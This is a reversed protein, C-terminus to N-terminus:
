LRTGARLFSFLMHVFTLVIAGLIAAVFNKIRFGPALLASALWLVIANIVVLFLGLTLFTLPLTVIKLVFGLTANLLGVVLAAVLAVRFSEVQFGPVIHAVILLSLASLLWEILLHVM